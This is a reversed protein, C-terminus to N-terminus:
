LEPYLNLSLFETASYCHFNWPNNQKTLFIIIIIIKKKKLKTAVYQNCSLGPNGKLLSNQRKNETDCRVNGYTACLTRCLSYRLNGKQPLNSFKVAERESEHLAALHLPCSFICEFSINSEQLFFM